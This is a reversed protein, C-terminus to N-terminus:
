RSGLEILAQDLKFQKPRNSSARIWTRFCIHFVQFWFATSDSEKNFHKEVAWRNYAWCVNRYEKILDTKM